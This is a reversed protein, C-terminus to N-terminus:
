VHVCVAAAAHVAGGGRQGTQWVATTDSHTVGCTVDAGAECVCVCEEVIGLLYWKICGQEVCACVCLFVVGVLLM